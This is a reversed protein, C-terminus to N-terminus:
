SDHESLRLGGTYEYQVLSIKKTQL